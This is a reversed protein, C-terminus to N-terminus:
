IFQFNAPEYLTSAFQELTGTTIVLFGWFITAHMIGAVKKKLVAKQGLVNALTTLIREPIRDLRNAKAHHNKMMKFLISFRYGSYGFTAVAVFIFAFTQWTM